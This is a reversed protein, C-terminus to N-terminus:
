REGVPERSVGIIGLRRVLCSVVDDFPVENCFMLEASVERCNADNSLPRTPLTRIVLTEHCLILVATCVTTSLEPENRVLV